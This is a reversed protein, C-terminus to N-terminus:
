ASQDRIGSGQFRVHGFRAVERRQCCAPRDDLALERRHLEQVAAEGADRSGVIGDVRHDRHVRIGRAPTGKLDLLSDAAARLHAQEGAQRDADLVQLRRGPEPGCHAGQEVLVV